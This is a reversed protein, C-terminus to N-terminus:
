KRRHNGRRSKRAGNSLLMYLFLFVVSVSFLLEALSVLAGHKAGYTMLNFITVVLVIAIAVCLWIINGTEDKGYNFVFIVVSVMEILAAPVINIGKTDQFWDAAKMFAGTLSLLLVVFLLIEM